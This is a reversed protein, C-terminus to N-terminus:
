IRELEQNIILIITTIIKATAKVDARIYRRIGIEIEMSPDGHREGTTGYFYGENCLEQLAADLLGYMRDSKAWVLLDRSTEKDTIGYIYINGKGPYITRDDPDVNAQRLLKDVLEGIRRLNLYGDAYIIM